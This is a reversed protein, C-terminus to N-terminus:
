QTVHEYKLLAWFGRWENSHAVPCTQRMDAYIEHASTWDEAALPDFDDTLREDLQTMDDGEARNGCTEQAVNRQRCLRSAPACVPSDCVPTPRVFRALSTDIVCGNAPRKTPQVSSVNVPM